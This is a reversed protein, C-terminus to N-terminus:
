EEPNVNLQVLYKTSFPYLDSSSFPQSNLEPCHLVVGASLFDKNDAKQYSLEDSLTIFKYWLTKLKFISRQKPNVMKIRYQMM